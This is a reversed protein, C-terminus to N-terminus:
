FVYKLAFQMIRPDGATDTIRGATSSDLTVNPNAWNVTNFLNFAEVRIEIRHGAAVSVNRSIGLDANWFGPGYLTGRHTNGQQGPAPNAFAAMDLWQLETHNAEWTPNALYPNVGPVLLPRQNPEGTLANDNTVGPTLPSGSRKQLILGIQWNKTLTKTIGSGLGPSLLVSSVNLLHRRDSACAGEALSLDPRPDNFPDVLTGPITWSIDTTPEGQNICKSLTYNANASWGHSLRKQIGLRMGNYHGEADPYMQQIGAFNGSANVNYKAGEVPNVLTLVARALRNASSTNSCPGDATLGYQGKVCNGPIYVAPNEAYGGIWIHRQQNGTYTADLLFGGKLQRQYSVNYQYSQMPHSDVPMSVYVGSTPFPADSTPLRVPEGMHPYDIAVLPDGGPTASWPDLFDIPCGNRSPQGPCSNPRLAQVTNGFPANLMHHATTWLKPSDYYIGFGTRITQKGDGGPDIVFGVRPAFQKYQNNTNANNTPFGPDGAFVLGAPANPYTVSHIGKDFNERIFATTFGNRDKPALFPEWRMGYNFTLRSNVRWVDNAYLGVAHVYENNIQSGGLQYGSPYGLLFDALNLGGSTQSTGSTILGNFAFQGDAQFPGDGDSSPRTWSGGMSLTHSGKVWSFDQSIQPTDVFFQGTNGSNWLGLKLMDQGPISGTTYMFSKVGLMGLTPVGVGNERIAKTHQFSFRTTSVLNSTLVYDLGTAITHSLARNGSTAAVLDQNWSAPSNFYAFFDRGFVRASPTVQYDIRSVYQQDTSNNPQAIPYRGCGDPDLSPDPLPVMTTVISMSLPNFLAPDIQNNVFPAGLTRNTGGRCAASMVRRFDGRLMEATPVFQNRSLPQVNNITGQVGFFFFLKDHMIPGGLTGGFQNRQLGDDQGLGGNQKKEFFEIANFRHDRMFDFLNGHFTNTGSKTVANVTAGTSMGYRADRVGSETRFEQLADPFPIVNGANLQPDNNYGGDVLYQTSNSTGGAVSIAVQGPFGRNGATTGGEVAGGQLVLLQTANRGNLPLNVILEQSTVSGVSLSQTQVLSADAQVTITESMGGVALVIRLARTDGVALVIGTQEFTSFGSLKATVKYPGVPLNTFVYGGSANTVVFRTMGTDTQTVTVEVGPLAAGSSDVVTGSLEAVTQAYASPACALALALVLWLRRRFM